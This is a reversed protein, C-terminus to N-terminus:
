GHGVGIMARPTEDQDTQAHYRLVRILDSTRPPKVIFDDMDVARCMEQDEPTADATLAILSPRQEEPRNRRIQRTAELGDMEPMLADMLM